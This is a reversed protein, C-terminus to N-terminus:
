PCATPIRPTGSSDSGYPGPPACTNTGRILYWYGAGEAPVQADAASTAPFSGLCVESGTGVPFAQAEGRVM